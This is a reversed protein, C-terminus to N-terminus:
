TRLFVAHYINILFSHHFILFFRYVIYPQSLLSEALAVKQKVRLRTSRERKYEEYDVRSNAFGKTRSGTEDTPCESADNLDSLQCEEQATKREGDYPNDDRREVRM